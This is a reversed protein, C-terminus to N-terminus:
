GKNQNCHFLFAFVLIHLKHHLLELLTDDKKPNLMQTMLAVVYPQSITQDYGIYLANDIYAYNMIDEPIFNERPIKLFSDLINKDTIGRARLQMFVMLEKEKQFDIKEM